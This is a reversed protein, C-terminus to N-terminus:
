DTEPYGIKALESPDFGAQEATMWDVDEAMFIEGYWQDPFLAPKCGSTMFEHIEDCGKCPKEGVNKVVWNNDYTHVTKTTM